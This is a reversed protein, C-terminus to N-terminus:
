DSWSLRVDGDALIQPLGHPRLSFPDAVSAVRGRSVKTRLIVAVGAPDQWRHDHRDGDFTAVTLSEGATSITFTEPIPEGRKIAVPVALRFGERLAALADRCATARDAAFSATVDCGAARQAILGLKGATPAKSYEMWRLAPLAALREPLPAVGPAVDVGYRDRISLAEASSISLPLRHWGCSAPGEDTGRLRCSLLQGASIAARHHRLLSWFVARGYLEPASIMALTRRGRAYPVTQGMGGHGSFVLCGGGASGCGATAWPCGNHARAESTLGNREALELLAPLFGRAGDHQNGPDIARALARAPLHHLIVARCDLGPGAGKRLKANGRDTTFLDPVTLGFRALHQSVDVPVARPADRHIKLM